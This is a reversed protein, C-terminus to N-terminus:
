SNSDPAICRLIHSEGMCGGLAYELIQRLIEPPLRLLPSEEQNRKISADAILSPECLGSDVSPLQIVYTAKTGPDRAATFAMRRKKLPQASSETVTAPNEVTAKRKAM